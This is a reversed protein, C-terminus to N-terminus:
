IAEKRIEDAFLQIQVIDIGTQDAIEELACGRKLMNRTIVKGLREEEKKKKKNYKESYMRDFFGKISFMLIEKKRKIHLFDDFFYYQM